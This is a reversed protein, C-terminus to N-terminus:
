EVPKVDPTHDDNNNGDNNGDNNNDDNNGNNNNDNNNQDNIDPTGSGTNNSNPKTNPKPCVLKKQFEQREQRVKEMVPIGNKIIEKAIYYIVIVGITVWVCGANRQVPKGEGKKDDPLSLIWHVKEEHPFSKIFEVKKKIEDSRTKAIIEDLYIDPDHIDVSVPMFDFVNEEM